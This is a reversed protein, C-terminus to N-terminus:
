NYERSIQNKIKKYNSKKYPPAGGPTYSWNCHKSLKLVLKNKNTRKQNLRIGNYGHKIVTITLKRGSKKFKSCEDGTFSYKKEAAKVTNGISPMFIAMIFLCIVGKFILNKLKM